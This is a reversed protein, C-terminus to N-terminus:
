TEYPDAFAGFSGLGGDVELDTATVFSADPSCLWLIAAAVESSKGIRGLPHRNALAKGGGQEELTARVLPTDIAGPSVSVVRIGQRAYEIGWQRSQMVNAAKIPGYTGVQRATRHAQGSAVNVIVGSAQAIMVPLAHKAMLHYGSLNVALMHQWTETALQHIPMYSPKPQVAANNILVDIGGLREVTYEVAAFCSVENSVDCLFFDVGEPLDGATSEDVDACVVRAGSAAFADCVARGIGSGGGSVLAVRGTNDYRVSGRPRSHNMM